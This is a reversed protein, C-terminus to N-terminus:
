GRDDEQCYCVGTKAIQACCPGDGVPWSREAYFNHHDGDHGKDLTCPLWQSGVFETVPCPESPRMATVM